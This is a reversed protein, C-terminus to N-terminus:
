ENSASTHSAAAKQPTPAVAAANQHMVQAWRTTGSDCAAIM